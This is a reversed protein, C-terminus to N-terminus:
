YLYKQYEELGLSDADIWATDVYINKEELGKTGADLSKLAMCITEVGMQFPQQSVMGIETGDEVAKQQGSDGDFGAVKLDLDPYEGLVELFTDAIEMNTCFVGKLNPYQEIIGKIVTKIDGSRLEDQYVTEVVKVGSHKGIEETFGEVRQKINQAKGLQSFVAIQGEEELEECLEKAALAGAAKNDTGCYGTIGESNVGSDFLIVPIGNERATDIQAECSDADIASLCLVSPNEALVADIINIQDTVDAEDDPGEFTLTIKEDKELGNETNIKEVVAEMGEKIREWYEGKESKAVVAIQAGKEVPVGELSLVAEEEETEPSASPTVATEQKAEEQTQVASSSVQTSSREAKASQVCGAMTGLLVATCLIVALKRKM